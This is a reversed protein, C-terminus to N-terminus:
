KSKEKSSRVETGDPLGYGGEVIVLEGPTIGNTIRVKEGTKEGTEVERKHAISKGDVIMVSGKRTGEEFQVAAVPVVISGPLTGTIIKIRAFVGSRLDKPQGPIQSWVEVTRRAPDVARNV